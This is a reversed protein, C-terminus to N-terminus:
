EVETEKRPSRSPIMILVAVMIEYIFGTIDIGIRWDIWWEHCESQDIGQDGTGYRM